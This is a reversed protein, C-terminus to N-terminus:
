TPKTIQKLKEFGQGMVCVCVCAFDTKGTKLIRIKVYGVVGFTM